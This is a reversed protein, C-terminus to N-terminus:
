KLQSSPVEGSKVKRLIDNLREAMPGTRQPATRSKSLSAAAHRRASKKMKRIVEEPDPEAVASPTPFPRPTPESAVPWPAPAQRPEALHQTRAPPIFEGRPLGNAVKPKDSVQMFIAAAICFLVTASTLLTGFKSGLFREIFAVDRHPM